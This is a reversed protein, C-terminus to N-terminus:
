MIFTFGPTKMMGYSGYSNERYEDTEDDRPDGLITEVGAVEIENGEPTEITEEEKQETNGEDSVKADESGESDSEQTERDVEFLLGMDHMAMLGMEAETQMDMIHKLGHWKVVHAPLVYENESLMVPIDDAMESPTTGMAMPDAMLGDEHDCGCAMGGHAMEPLEDEAMARQVAEGRTKQYESLKGDKDLDAKKPDMQFNKKAMELGEKTRIGKRAEKLSQAM